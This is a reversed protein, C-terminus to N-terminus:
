KTILMPIYLTSQTSPPLSFLCITQFIHIKSRLVGPFIQPSFMKHSANRSGEFVEILRYEHGERVVSM